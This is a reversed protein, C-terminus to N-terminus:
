GAFDSEGNKGGAKKKRGDVPRYEQKKRHWTDLARVEMSVNYNQQGSLVLLSDSPYRNKRGAQIYIYFSNM